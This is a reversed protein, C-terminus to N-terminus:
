CKPNEGGKDEIAPRYVIRGEEITVTLKDGKSLNLQKAIEPPLVIGIEDNFQEIKVRM